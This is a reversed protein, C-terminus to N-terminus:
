AIFDFRMKHFYFTLDYIDEEFCEIIRMEPDNLEILRQEAKEKIEYIDIDHTTTKTDFRINNFNSPHHLHRFNNRHKLDCIVFYLKPEYGNILKHINASSTNSHKILKYKASKKGSTHLKCCTIINLQKLSM